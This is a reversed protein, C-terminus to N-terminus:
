CIDILALVLQELKQTNKEDTLAGNDTFAKFASGIAVQQPIVIMGLNSLLTRLHPLGRIGGLGGPSASIIAARKGTYVNDEGRSCWDITNKLLPSILGNYEPSAILLADHRAILERIKTANEPVGDAEEVDGDYLPMPYEKLDILTVEAHSEALKATATILKKNFSQTRASGAFMLIKPM